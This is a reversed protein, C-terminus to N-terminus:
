TMAPLRAMIPRPGSRAPGVLAGHCKRYLSLFHLGNEGGRGPAKMARRVFEIDQGRFGLLLGETIKVCSIDERTNDGWCASNEARAPTAFYLAVIAFLIGACANRRDSGLLSMGPAAYGPFSM